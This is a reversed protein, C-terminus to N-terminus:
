CVILKHCYTENQSLEVIYLGELNQFKPYWCSLYNNGYVLLPKSFVLQNNLNFVKMNILDNRYFPKDLHFTQFQSNSTPIILKHISDDNPPHCQMAVYDVYENRLNLHCITTPNISQAVEVTKEESPDVLNVRAPTIYCLDYAHLCEIWDNDQDDDDPPPPAGFSSSFSLFSFLLLLIWKM